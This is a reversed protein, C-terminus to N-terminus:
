TLILVSVVLYSTISYLGLHRVANGVLKELALIVAYLMIKTLPMGLSHRKGM